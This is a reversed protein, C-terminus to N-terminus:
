STVLLWLANDTPKTWMIKVLDGDSYLYQRGEDLTIYHYGTSSKSIQWLSRNQSMPKETIDVKSEGVVSLFRKQNNVGQYVKIYYNGSNDGEVPVLIWKQRGSGDDQYWLGVGGNEGTSLFCKNSRPLLKNIINVKNLMEIQKIPQTM